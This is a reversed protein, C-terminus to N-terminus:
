VKEIWYTVRWGGATQYAPAILDAKHEEAFKRVEQETGEFAAVDWKKDDTASQTVNYYITNNM